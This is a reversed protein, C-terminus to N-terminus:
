ERWRIQGKSLIFESILLHAEGIVVIDGSQLASKVQVRDDDEM